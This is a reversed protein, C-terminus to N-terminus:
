LALSRFALLLLVLEIARDATREADAVCPVCSLELDANENSEVDEAAVESATSYWLAQYDDKYSLYTFVCVVVFIVGTIGVCVYHLTKFRGLIANGPLPSCPFSSYCYRM